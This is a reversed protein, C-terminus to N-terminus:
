QQLPTHLQTADVQAVTKAVQEQETVWRDVLHEPWATTSTNGLKVSHPFDGSKQLRYLASKSLGTARLVETLRMLRHM